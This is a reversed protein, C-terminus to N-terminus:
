FEHSIVNELGVFYHILYTPVIISVAATVPYPVVVGAVAQPVLSITLLLYVSVVFIAGSKLLEIHNVKQLYTLIVVSPIGVIYFSTFVIVSISSYQGVFGIGSVLLSLGFISIIAEGLFSSLSRYDKM